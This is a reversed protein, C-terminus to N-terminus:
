HDDKRLGAILDLYNAVSGDVVPKGREPGNKNKQWEEFYQHVQNLFARRDSAVFLLDTSTGIGSVATSVAPVGMAKYMSLKLPNMYTSVEDVVHPMVAVHTGGLLKLVDREPLPGLYAVNPQKLLDRFAAPARAAGGALFLEVQDSLQGIAELLNWDVRDNMNGSYLIRFKHPSHNRNIPQDPLEYWNEIVRTNSPEFIGSDVFFDRNNQSNFVIHDSQCDLYNYQRGYEMKTKSAAWSFQNDVVDVIVPYDHFVDMLKDWYNIIPFVVVVTNQPVAGHRALFQLQKRPLLASSRYCINHYEIGEPDLYGGRKKQESMDLILNADSAGNDAKSIYEEEQRDHMYDLVFVNHDPNNNKYSRALQDVRRGYIGADHQKWILLLTPKLESTQEATPLYSFVEAARAHSGAERAATEYQQYGGELTLESPLTLPTQNSVAKMIQEAFNTADFLYLGPMGELDAVSPSNPVLIPRGSRLADGIKSSIQYRIINAKADGQDPFGALLVDMKEIEDTLEGSAIYGKVEVGSAELEDRLPKPQVDGYVHFRIDLGSNWKLLQLSKAAALINKHRRVTGIFGINITSSNTVDSRARVSEVTSRAHRVLHGGFDDQLPKSAVTRTKVQERLQRAIGLGMLGYPKDSSPKSLSFQDDDDDLDLILRADPQAIQAALLFTPYRPKCMWITDFKIGMQEILQHYAEREKWPIAVLNVGSDLLPPWVGGGFEKFMYTFMVVPHRTAAIDHLVRARGVPNHSGDWCTVAIAGPMRSIQKAKVLASVPNTDLIRTDAKREAVLMTKPGVLAYLQILSDENLATVRFSFGTNADVGLAEQVDPREGQWNILGAPRGDVLLMPSATVAPSYLWGSVVGSRTSSDINGFITGSASIAKDRFSGVTTKAASLEDENEGPQEGLAGVVLGQAMPLEDSTGCVRVSLESINWSVDLTFRFGYCGDGLGANLLDQRFSSAPETDLVEGDLHLEVSLPDRGEGPRVWGSLFHSNLGDIFGRTETPNSPETLKSSQEQQKPM